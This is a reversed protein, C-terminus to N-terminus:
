QRTGCGVCRYGHGITAVVGGAIIGGFAWAGVQLFNTPDPVAGNAAASGLIAEAIGGAAVAVAVVLSIISNKAAFQRGGCTTCPRLKSVTTTLAM